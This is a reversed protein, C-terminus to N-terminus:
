YGYGGSSAPASSSPSSTASQGSPTAVFFDQVGQGTVRGPQDEVFTYLFHGQYTVQQGNSTTRSSLPATTGQETPMSAVLPPWLTALQGTVHSTSATDHGYTYLPMGHVDVLIRETKGQVTATAVRVTPRGASNGQGAATGQPAAAAAPSSAAGYSNGGSGGTTAAYAIGGAGALVFAMAALTIRSRRM